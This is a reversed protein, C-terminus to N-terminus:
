AVSEVGCLELIQPVRQDECIGDEQDYTLSILLVVCEFYTGVVTSDLTVSFSNVTRGHGGRGLVDVSGNVWINLYGNTVGGEMGGATVVMSLVTEGNECAYTM